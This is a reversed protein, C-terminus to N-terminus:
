ATAVEEVPFAGRLIFEKDTQHIELKGGLEEVREKMNTLGFGMQFPRVEDLQNTIIFHLHGLATKGLTVKVEKVCSHKMANTIGEQICRYVAINQKNTLRTSLVGHQTTLEVMVSSESELKRILQIVSQIGEIEGEKLAKVAERTEDLSAAALNKIEKFLSYGHQISLMEIKMLLATLNHGVSDHIERAIRTREEAKSNREATYLVRKLKRYEGLLQDYLLRQEKLDHSGENVKWTMFLFMAFFPIVAPTYSDWFLFAEVGFFLVTSYMFLRYKEPLLHISAELHFYCFIGWALLPEPSVLSSVLLLLTQCIYLFLKNRSVPTIFFLAFSLSCIMMLSIMSISDQSSDYILVGWLVSLFITRIIIATM